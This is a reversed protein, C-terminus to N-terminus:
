LNIFHVLTRVLQNVYSMENDYWTVIKYLAEEGDLLKQTSLGDFLTGYTTGIIDTSVIPDMTFGMSDNTESKIAANIEEVSVNAGLKFTFDVVSGTVTPVRMANGDLKGAMAPIVKGIAVAAGTTTPIINVAGARARRLDGHPADVTRQDGTYAHVTTMFGSKIEFKNHLTNVVPALCNTTCSAGSAIKDDSTLIEHNVNYVVTKVDGKAPASILVKKAGAKLHLSSGEESVFFGTSEIVLDINLAGWNLDAPNREAFVKIEKGNVVLVDEGKVEVTGNFQGQASDYKLLHALTKANTLDNVAVVEVDNREALLRFTLRGIRGFGNIAIKKM